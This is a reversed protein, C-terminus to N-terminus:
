VVLERGCEFVRTWDPSSGSARALGRQLSRSWAKKNKGGGGNRSNANWFTASMPLRCGPYEEDVARMNVSEDHSSGRM